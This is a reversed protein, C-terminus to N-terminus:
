ARAMTPHPTTARAGNAQSSGSCPALKGVLRIYKKAWTAHKDCSVIKNQSSFFILLSLVALPSMIENSSRTQCLLVSVHKRIVFWTNRVTNYQDPPPNLLLDKTQPHRSEFVDYSPSFSMVGFVYM